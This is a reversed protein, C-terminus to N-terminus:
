FSLYIGLIGFVLILFSIIFINKKFEKAETARLKSKLINIDVRNSNNNVNLPKKAFGKVDTTETRNPNDSSIKFM